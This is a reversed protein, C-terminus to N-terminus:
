SWNFLTTTRSRTIALRHSSSGAIWCPNICSLSSSAFIM